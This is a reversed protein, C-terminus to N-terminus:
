CCGGGVEGCGDGKPCEEVDGNGRCSAGVVNPGGIWKPDYWGGVGVGNMKPCSCVVLVGM